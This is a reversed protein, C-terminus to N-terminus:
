GTEFGSLAFILGLMERPAEGRVMRKLHRVPSFGLGRALEVAAQNEEPLDWVMPGRAVRAAVEMLGRAEGASRALCPGLYHALRGARHMAFGGERGVWGEGGLAALVRGRDTGTAERDLAPNVPGWEGAAREETNEGRWRQVECEVRYGLAEYLPRGMDTADLRSAKVGISDLWELAAEMARRAHGRRRADPHTLVMGIWALERGHCVATATAVIQGGEEVGFCGEPELSLVRKWDEPTQNWGAANSLEM